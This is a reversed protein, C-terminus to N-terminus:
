EPAPNGGGRRQFFSPVQLEPKIVLISIHMIIFYAGTMIIYCAGTSIVFGFM